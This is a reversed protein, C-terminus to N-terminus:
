GAPPAQGAQRLADLERQLRAIEAEAAAARQRAEVAQRAAADARQREAEARQREAEAQRREAEAQQHELEARTPVVRGEADYFRLWADETELYMGTWTGLWLSLTESWMRGTADPKIPKFRRGEMRWGELLRSEPDYCFYERLKFTREYLDKKTTRDIVATTPSILEIIMDPFQGGEDWVAWYPRPRDRDAGEAYFFDPGAYDRNRVQASSFYVFMNGGVYFDRRDARSVKVAEILLNICARHWPTELPQGDTEPLNSPPVPALTKITVEYPVSEAPTM